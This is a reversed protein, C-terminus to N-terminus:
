SYTAEMGCVVGQMTLWRHEDDLLGTSTYVVVFSQTLLSNDPQSTKWVFGDTGTTFGDTWHFSTLQNCAATLRVLACDSNRQAGIWLKLGAPATAVITTIEAANQFGTAVAASNLTQCYQTALLANPSSGIYAKMCWFYTDRNFLTWTSDVCSPVLTTTTTSTTTTTTSTTSTTTTVDEATQTPICCDCFTGFLILVAIVATSFM